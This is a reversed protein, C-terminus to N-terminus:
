LSEKLATAREAAFSRSSADLGQGELALSYHKAADGPRELQELAIALGLQWTAQSPRGNVLQQYLAASQPWQQTQQYSAALLAHYGPETALPPSNQQLTAVAAPMAGTQLQARALLMRLESDRPNAQLQAPLWSLLQAPQGNALYAQALLRAVESNSSPRRHLAELQAIASPYNQELLAQRAQSLADPQHSTIQVQPPGTPAATIPQPRVPVAAPVPAESNTAPVPRTSWDPLEPEAAVATSAAPFEEVAGVNAAPANQLPVELWLLWRDGAAELRDHVQLQDGLGVLLVQVGGGRAEVRWSLSRGAGQVRGQHPEGRLQVGPLFLSVAGNEETRQYAVSSDLLLQLLLRQGDNQPLVDLLQPLPAAAVAVVPPTVPAPTIPAPEPVAAPVQHQAAFPSVPDGNVVRGIMLGVMIALLMVAGFWISGRRLVEIKDRRAAAEENVPQLADRLPWEGPAARRADLDRLLDNVLSM